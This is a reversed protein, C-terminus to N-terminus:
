KLPGIRSTSTISTLRCRILFVQDLVAPQFFARGDSLCIFRYVDHISRRCKRLPESTVAPPAHAAAEMVSSAIGDAAQALGAGVKVALMAISGARTRWVM